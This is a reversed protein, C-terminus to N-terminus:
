KDAAKNVTKEHRPENPCHLSILSSQTKVPGPQDSGSCVLKRMVCMM